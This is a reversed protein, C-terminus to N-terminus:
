KSQAMKIEKKLEKKLMGAFTTIADAFDEDSVEETDDESLSKLWEVVEKYDTGFHRYCSDGDNGFERMGNQMRAIFKFQHFCFDVGNVIHFKKFMETRLELAQEETLEM